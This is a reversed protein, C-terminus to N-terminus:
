GGKGRWGQRRPCATSRTSHRAEPSRPMPRSPQGMQSQSTGLPYTKRHFLDIAKGAVREVTHALAPAVGAPDGRQECLRRRPQDRELDQLRRTAIAALHREVPQWDLAMQGGNRIPPKLDKLPVLRTAPEALLSAIWGADRRRESMRDLPNGAFCYIEEMPFCIGKARTLTLHALWGAWHRSRGFRPM